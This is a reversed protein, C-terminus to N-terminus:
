DMEQISNCVKETPLADECAVFQQLMQKCLTCMCLFLIFIVITQVFVFSLFLKPDGKKKPSSHFQQAYTIYDVTGELLM